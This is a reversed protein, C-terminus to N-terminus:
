GLPNRNQNVAVRMLRGTLWLLAALVILIGVAPLWAGRLLEALLFFAAAASGAILLLVGVAVIATGAVRAARDGSDERGKEDDAREVVTTVGHVTSVDDERCKEDEM